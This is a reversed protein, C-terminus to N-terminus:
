RLPSCAQIMDVSRAPDAQLPSTGVLCLWGLSGDLVAGTPSDNEGVPVTAKGNAESKRQEGIYVVNPPPFRVPNSNQSLAALAEFRNGKEEVQSIDSFVGALANFQLPLLVSALPPFGHSVAQRCRLAPDQAPFSSLSRFLRFIDLTSIALPPSALFAM